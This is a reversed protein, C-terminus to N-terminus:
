GQEDRRECQASPKILDPTAVLKGPRWRPRILTPTAVRKKGVLLYAGGAFRGYRRGLREMFELRQMIGEHSLPPRYFYTQDRLTDFGLLRLWERIRKGGRFQGTWPIRARYSRLLRVLGWISWPNFGLIIVHGEPILVRDVERLVEYPDSVFELTHPLIVVDVSDSCIPLQAPHCAVATTRERGKQAPLGDLICFHPIRSSTYMDEDYLAGVQLAHYGFLNALVSKLRDEEAQKLKQGLSTTNYWEYLRDIQQGEM